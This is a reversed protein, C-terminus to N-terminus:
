QEEYVPVALQHLETTIFSSKNCLGDANSFGSAQPVSTWFSSVRKKPVVSHSIYVGVVATRHGNRVQSVLFFGLPIQATSRGQSGGLQLVLNLIKYTWRAARRRAL